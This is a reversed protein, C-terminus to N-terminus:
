FANEGTCRIFQSVFVWGPQMIITPTHPLQGSAAPSTQESSSKNQGLPQPRPQPPSLVQEEEEEGQARTPQPSEPTVRFPRLNGPDETGPSKLLKPTPPRGASKQPPRHAPLFAANSLTSDLILAFTIRSTNLVKFPMAHFFMIGKVTITRVGETHEWYDM